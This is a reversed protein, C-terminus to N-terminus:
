RRTRVPAARTRRRGARDRSRRGRGRDGRRRRRSPCHDAGTTGPPTHRFANVVLNDVVRELLGRDATVALEADVEVVMLHGSTLPALREATHAVVEAVVVPRPDPVLEGRQLLAADLLQEVIQALAVGNAWLRQLLEDHLGRDMDPRRALTEALGAMVTVPTRLEHSVTAVVDDKMRDLEALRTLMRRDAAAEDSLALARGAHDALLVFADVQEQPWPTTAPTGALLVGVTVDNVVIPTGILNALGLQQYLGTATDLDAVAVRVADGHELVQGVVGASSPVVLQRHEDPLGTSAATHLMGDDGLLYVIAPGDVLRASARAVADLIDQSDTTATHTIGEVAAALAIASRAAAATAEEREQLEVAHLRAGTGAVVATGVVAVLAALVSTDLVGALAASTTSVAVALASVATHDRVDLVVGSYALIAAVAVLVGIPLGDALGVGVSAALAAALVQARAVTRLRRAGHDRALMVLALANVATPPAGLALAQGTTLGFTDPTLAAMALLAVGLATIAQAARRLM